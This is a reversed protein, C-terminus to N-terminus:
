SGVLYDRCSNLIEDVKERVPAKVEISELKSGPGLVDGVAGKFINEVISDEQQNLPQIGDPASKGLANYIYWTVSNAYKIGLESSLFDDSIQLQESSFNQYLISQYTEALISVDIRDICEAFEKTALGKEAGDIISLKIGGFSLDALFKSTESLDSNGTTSILLSISFALGLYSM